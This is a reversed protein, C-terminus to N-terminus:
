QFVHVLVDTRAAVAIGVEIVSKGSALYPKSYGKSSIQERAEEIASELVARKKDSTAKVDCKCYKWEMVYVTEHTELIVDARGLGVSIEAHIHAGLLKLLVYFISHYYSEADIHLQYPISSFLSVLLPQLKELEGSQFARIINHSIKQTEGDTLKALASLLHTHFAKNVEFNPIRLRYSGFEDLQESITLYGTQFLLPILSLRDIDMADLNDETIEFPEQMTYQLPDSKILDLLFKPTGSNYWFARFQGRQFYRLLSFPNLLFSSGDWSYGDYWKLIQQILQSRASDDQGLQWSFLEEMEKVTFGCINACDPHLTIDTFQNAGSFISTKSFKSVGTMFVFRLYEDASKLVGLLNRLENRMEIAAGTLLNDLIPKDYEDILVVVRKGYKNSMDRILNRLIAGPSADSLSLDEKTALHKLELLLDRRFGELGESIFMSMDLRIVPHFPYDYGCSDIWLGEFLKQNGLFLEELTSILLSKGFRRPRSLFISGESQILNYVYKTKDAYLYDSERIKRFSQIGIPLKKMPLVGEAKQLYIDFERTCSILIWSNETVLITISKRVIDYLASM